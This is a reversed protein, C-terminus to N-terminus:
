SQNDIVSVDLNSVDAISHIKLSILLYSPNNYVVIIGEVQLLIMFFSNYSLKFILNISSLYSSKLVFGNM